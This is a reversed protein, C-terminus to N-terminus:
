SVSWYPVFYSTLNPLSTFSFSSQSFAMLNIIIAIGLYFKYLLLITIMYARAGSDMNLIIGNKMEMICSIKLDIIFTLSSSIWTNPVVPFKGKLCNCSCTLFGLLFHPCLFSALPAIVGFETVLLYLFCNLSNMKVESFCFCMVM